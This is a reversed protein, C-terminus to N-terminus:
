SINATRDYSQDERQAQREHLLILGSRAKNLLRKRLQMDYFMDGIAPESHLPSCNAMQRAYEHRSTIFHCVEDNGQRLIDLWEDMWWKNTEARDRFEVLWNYARQVLEPDQRIRMAILRDMMLKVRDNVAEADPRFM